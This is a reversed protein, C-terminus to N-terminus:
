RGATEDDPRAYDRVCLTVAALMANVGSLAFVTCGGLGAPVLEAGLQRRLLLTRRALPM